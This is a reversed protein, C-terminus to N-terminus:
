YRRHVAGRHNLTSQSAKRRFEQLEQLEQSRSKKLQTGAKAFGPILVGQCWCGIQSISIMYSM